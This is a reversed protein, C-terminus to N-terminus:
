MQQIKFCTHGLYKTIQYLGRKEKNLSQYVLALHGQHWCNVRFLLDIAIGRILTQIPRTQCVGAHMLFKM